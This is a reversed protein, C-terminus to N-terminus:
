DNQKERNPRLERTKELIKFLVSETIRADRTKIAKWTNIESLIWKILDDVTEIKRMREEEEEDDTQPIDPLKAWEGSRSLVWVSADDCLAWVSMSNEYTSSEGNPIACIQIIKRM